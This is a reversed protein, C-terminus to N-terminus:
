AANLPRYGMRQLAERNAAAESEEVCHCSGFSRDARFIKFMYLDPGAGNFKGANHFAYFGLNEQM